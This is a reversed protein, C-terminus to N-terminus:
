AFHRAPKSVTVGYKLAAFTPIRNLYDIPNVAIREDLVADWQITDGTDGMSATTQAVSAIPPSDPAERVDFDKQLFPTAVYVAAGVAGLPVAVGKVYRNM